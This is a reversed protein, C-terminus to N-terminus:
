RGDYPGVPGGMSMVVRHFFRKTTQIPSMVDDMMVLMHEGDPLVECVCYIMGFSNVIIDGAKIDENTWQQSM